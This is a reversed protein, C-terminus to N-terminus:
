SSIRRRSGGVAPLWPRRRVSAGREVARGLEADQAGGELRAHARGLHQELERGRVPQALGEDHAADAARRDGALQQAIRGVRLRAALDRALEALDHRADVGDVRSAQRREGMALRGVLDGAQAAREVRELWGCGTNSSASEQSSRRLGGGIALGTSTCPSKRM